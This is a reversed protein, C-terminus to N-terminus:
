VKREAGAAEAEMRRVWKEVENGETPPERRVAEALVPMKVQLQERMKSAFEDM